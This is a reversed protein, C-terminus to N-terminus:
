PKDIETIPKRKVTVEYTEDRLIIPITCGGAGMADMHRVLLRALEKGYDLEENLEDSM